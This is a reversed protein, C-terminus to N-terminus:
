QLFLMKKFHVSGAAELRCFYVGSSCGTPAWVVAYSNAQQFEDLLTEVVRGYLDLITVRVRSAIPIEYRITTSPNFPNPYNQLLAFQRPVAASETAVADVVGTEIFSPTCYSSTGAISSACVHWFYTTNAELSTTTVLTTDSVTTDRAMTTFTNDKALQFRYSTAYASKRWIYKPKRSENSANKPSVLVPVDPIPGTIIFNRMWDLAPRETGTSRLVYTEPYSSWVDNQYYGWLTIGRVSPNTWFIPFYIKYQDLQTNDNPEDVDFETIYIPLGITAFRSLNNNITGLSYVYGGSGVRTRFEFYHGQIGIGDVLKRDKLMNILSIYTTAGADSGLVNYENLLLTATPYYKRALQFATIVWDWGTTGDGGLANKYAPPAHLPENVVDVYHTEPYRQAVSRIWNEVASRQGASDLSQDTMWSPQQSGWVLCHEKFYLGNNKAYQYLLDLGSWNFQGRVGEVSGWKGDNGPTIQNWYQGFNPWVTSSSGAGLFKNQGEALRQASAYRPAVVSLLLAVLAAVEWRRNRM